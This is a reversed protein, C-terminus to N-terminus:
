NRSLTRKMLGVLVQFALSYRFIARSFSAASWFSCYIGSAMMELSSMCSSSLYGITSRATLSRRASELGVRADPMRADTFAIRCLSRLPPKAMSAGRGGAPSTDDVGAIGCLADCATGVAVVAVSSETGCVGM